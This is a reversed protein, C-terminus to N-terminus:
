VPIMIQALPTEQLNEERKRATVVVEELVMQASASLPLLSVTTAALAASLNSATFRNKKFM